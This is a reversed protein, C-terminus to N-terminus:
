YTYTSNKCLSSVVNQDVCFPWLQWLVSKQAWFCWLFLMAVLVRGRVGSPFSLRAVERPSLFLFSPSLLPFPPVSLLFKLTRFKQSPFNIVRFVTPIPISVTYMPIPIAAHGHAHSPFSCKWKGMCCNWNGHVGHGNGNGRYEWLSFPFLFFRMKASRYRQQQTTLQCYYYTYWYYFIFHQSQCGFIIHPLSQRSNPISYPWTKYLSNLQLTKSHKLNSENWQKETNMTQTYIHQVSHTNL